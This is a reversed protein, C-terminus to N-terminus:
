EDLGSEDRKAEMVTTYYDDMMDCLHQDKLRGM